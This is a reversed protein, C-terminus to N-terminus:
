GALVHRYYEVMAGTLIDRSFMAAVKKRAEAGM